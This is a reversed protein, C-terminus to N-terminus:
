LHGFAHVADSDDAGVGQEALLEGVLKLFREEGGGVKQEEVVFLALYGGDAILGGDDLLDLGAGEVTHVENEEGAGRCVRAGVPEGRALGAGADDVKGVCELALAAHEDACGHGRVEQAGCADRGRREREICRGDDGRM